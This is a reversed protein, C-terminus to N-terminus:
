ASSYGSWLSTDNVGSTFYLDSANTGSGNDGAVNLTNGHAWSHILWYNGSKVFDFWENTDGPQCSDLAITKSASDTNWCVSPNVGSKMLGWVNEHADIWLFPEANGSLAQLTEGHTDGWIGLGGDYLNTLLCGDAVTCAEPPGYTTASAPSATLVSGALLATPLGLALLIAGLRKRM